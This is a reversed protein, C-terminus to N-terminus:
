KSPMIIKDGIVSFMAEQTYLYDEGAFLWGKGNSQTGDRYEAIDWEGGNMKVFYFGSERM